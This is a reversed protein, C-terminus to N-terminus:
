EDPAGDMPPTPAVPKVAVDGGPLPPWDEFARAENPTLFQSNIGVAYSDIRTKSDGRLLGNVNIKLYQPRPLVTTLAAELRTIWPLFTVQVKRINRQEQNTYTLSTGDVPLGMEAPDILFMQSAIAADTFKQTELFQSQENTVGMPKWTAGGGLVAPLHAKGKGGHRKSFSSAWQKGQQPNLAEPTEIVGSLTAGDAFFRAGFEQTAMGVGITQRAAELPSLGVDSGPLMVGPVHLIEATSYTEGNVVYSKRGKTRQVTVAAPDIPIVQTLVTGVYARYAYFNGALLLSALAQGAWATFDLDVTPQRILMPTTLPESSGDGRKRLVDVPLTSIGDAIYRTCGYVTLLQLATTTSVNAGSWTESGEGAWPFETVLNQPEDKFLSAFM